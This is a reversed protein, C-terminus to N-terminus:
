MRPTTIYFAQILDALEAKSAFDQIRLQQRKLISFGQGVQSMWSYHVPPYHWIFRPHWALWQRVHRETLGVAQATHRIPMGQAILLVAQASTVLGAPLSTARAIRLLQAHEEATLVVVLSTKRSRM